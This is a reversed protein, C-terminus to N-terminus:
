HKTFHKAIVTNITDDMTGPKAKFPKGDSADVNVFQGSNKDRQPTNRTNANQPTNQEAILKARVVPNAWCAMEYATPLDKAAGTKILHLIDNGVDNVYKNKPDAFFTNVTELNKNVGSNYENTRFDKIFQKMELNERELNQLRLLAADNQPQSQGSLNIGYQSLLVQAIQAKRAPDGNQDMLELHVNMLGQMLEVVNVSPNAQLMQSYPQVLMGWLDHGAKYQQIGKFFQGEREQWYTQAEAPMKEWIPQNEKKWSKPMAPGAYTSQTSNAPNPNASNQGQVIRPDPTKIPDVSTSGELPEPTNPSLNSPETGTKAPFLDAGIDKVAGQIDFDSYISDDPEDTFGSM